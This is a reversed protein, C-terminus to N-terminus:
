RAINLHALNNMCSILECILYLYVLLVIFVLLYAPDFSDVEKAMGQRNGFVSEEVGKVFWLM